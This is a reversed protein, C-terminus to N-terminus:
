GIAWEAPQVDQLSKSDMWAFRALLQAAANWAILFAKSARSVSARHMWIISSLVPTVIELQLRTVM